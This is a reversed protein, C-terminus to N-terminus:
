AAEIELKILRYKEIQDSPACHTTITISQINSEMQEMQNIIENVLILACRKATCLALKQGRNNMNQMDAIIELAEKKAPTM